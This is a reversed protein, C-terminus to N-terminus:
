PLDEWRRYANAPIGAVECFIQQVLSAAFEQAQREARTTYGMGHNHMTQHAAEHALLQAIAEPAIFRPNLSVRARSDGTQFIEGGWKDRYAFDIVAINNAVYDYWGVRRLLRFALEAYLQETSGGNVAISLGSAQATGMGALAALAAPALKLFSRRNM